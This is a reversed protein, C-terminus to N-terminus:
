HIHVAIVNIHAPIDAQSGTNWVAPLTGDSVLIEAALTESEDFRNIAIWKDYEM